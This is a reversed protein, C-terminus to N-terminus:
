ILSAINAQLHTVTAAVYPPSLAKKKTVLVSDQAPRGSAVKVCPRDPRNSHLACPLNELLVKKSYKLKLCSTVVELSIHNGQKVKKWFIM